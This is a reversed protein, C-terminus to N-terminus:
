PGLRATAALVGLYFAIETLQQCAGLTDGTYGGLRRRLLARWYVAVAAAFLLGAAPTLWDTHSLTPALVRAAGSATHGEGRGVWLAAAVVVLFATLAALGLSISSVRRVLPKARSEDERAYPLTSMLAVVLARSVTHGAVLWALAAFPPLAILAASKMLLAMALGVAAYSGIRSDRMIELIRERTYGGGLGDLSDALGDEHFAGTLWLTACLSALVAIPWPWILQAAWMVLAGCLGVVAGVAPFYRAADDLLSQSHGVWPPVPIRTFYQLAALFLKVQSTVDVSEARRAIPL